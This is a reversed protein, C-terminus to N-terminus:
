IRIIPVGLQSAKELILSILEASNNMKSSVVISRGMLVSLSGVNKERDILYRDIRQGALPFFITQVRIQKLEGWRMECWRKGAIEAAIGWSNVVISSTALICLIWGFLNCIGLISLVVINLQADADGFSQVLRLVNLACFAALVAPVTLGVLRNLRPYRYRRSGLAFIVGDDDSM